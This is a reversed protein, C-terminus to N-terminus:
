RVKELKTVNFYHPAAPDGGNSRRTKIELHCPKWGTSKGVIFRRSPAGCEDEVKVRWGELGKLKYNLASQDAVAARTERPLKEWIQSTMRGDAILGRLRNMEHELM